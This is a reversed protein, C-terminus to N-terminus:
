NMPIAEFFERARPEAWGLDAKIGEKVETKMPRGDCFFIYSALATDTGDDAYSNATHVGVVGSGGLSRPHRFGSFVYEVGAETWRATVDNACGPSPCELEASRWNPSVAALNRRFTRRAAADDDFWDSASYILLPVLCLTGLGGLALGSRYLSRSMPVEKGRHVIVHGGITICRGGHPYAAKSSLLFRGKCM